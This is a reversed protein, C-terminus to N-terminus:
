PTMRPPVVPYNPACGLNNYLTHMGTFAATYADRDSGAARTSPAYSGVIVAYAPCLADIRHNTIATTYAMYGMVLVLGVSIMLSMAVWKVSLEVRKTRAALHTISDALLEENNM